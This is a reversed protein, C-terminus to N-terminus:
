LWFITSHKWPTDGKTSACLSDTRRITPSPTSSANSIKARACFIIRVGIGANGAPLTPEWRPQDAHHGCNGSLHVQVAEVACYRESRAFRIDLLITDPRKREVLELAERGNGAEGVILIQPSEDLLSAIRKRVRSSDDVILVQKM